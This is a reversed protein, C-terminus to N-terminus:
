NLTTFTVDTPVAFMSEDTPWAACEYDLTAGSDFTESGSTDTSEDGDGLSVMAKVGTPAASSWSYVYEGDSIMYSDVSGLQPVESTFDARVRDGAVYVVGTSDATPGTSAVSCKWSGGRAAIEDLTTNESFSEESVMSSDDMNDGTNTTQGGGLVFWAGLGIVVLGIIWVVGSRM